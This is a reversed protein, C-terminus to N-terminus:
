GYLTHRLTHDPRTPDFWVGSLRSQFSQGPNVVVSSGISDRYSSSMRPSEHIHGCLVLPPQHKEIFRRIARSGVHDGTRIQDCATDRPPSHFVFRAAAPDTAAALDSLADEITPVRRDPDFRHPKVRGGESVVGELQAPAEAHGDEWREWDKIPFPTIPVYSLGAVVLGDVETVREHLVTWLEGDHAELCGHNTRWDDNGMLLLLRTDASAERLRRAFEVLLGELFLRQRSIGEDGPGHPGLDGGILVARPAHAAGIALLQEYHTTLGHLDSTFFWQAM